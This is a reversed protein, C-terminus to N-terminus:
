KPAPSPSLLQQVVILLGGLLGPDQSPSPSATPTPTPAPKPGPAPNGSSPAPTSSPAPSTVDPQTTSGYPANYTPDNRQASTPAVASELKTLDMLVAVAQQLPDIARVGALVAVVGWSGGDARLNRASAYATAVRVDSAQAILAPLVRESIPERGTAKALGLAKTAIVNLAAARTNDSDLGAAVRSLYADLSVLQPAAERERVDGDTLALPGAVAPLAAGAASAQHLSDISLGNGIDTEAQVRGNYSVVRTTFGRDVRWIAHAEPEVTTQDSHIVFPAGGSGVGVLSGRELVFSREADRVVSTNAGVLLRRNGIKIVATSGPAASTILRSGIPVDQGQSAVTTQGSLSELSANVPNDVGGPARGAHEGHLVLASAAGTAFVGIIVSATLTRNM